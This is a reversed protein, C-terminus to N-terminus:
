RTASLAPDLMRLAEATTLAGTRDLDAKSYSRGPVSSCEGNGSAIRSGTALCHNMTSPASEAYRTAPTVACGATMAAILLGFLVSRPM